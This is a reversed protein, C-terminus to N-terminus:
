YMMFSSLTSSVFNTTVYYAVIFIVTLSITQFYIMMDGELKIEDNICKIFTVVSYLFAAIFIFTAFVSSFYAGIIIAIFLAIHVPIFAVTTISVLKFYNITKKMVCCVVYYVGAIAAIAIIFGVTQKVIIDFYPVDKLGDFSISVGASKFKSSIFVYIIISSLLLLITRCLSVFVLLLGASKVDAYDNIKNKITTVPKLLSALILHFYETVLSVFDFKKSTKDM